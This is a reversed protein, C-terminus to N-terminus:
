MQLYLKLWGYDQPNSVEEIVSDGWLWLSHEAGTARRGGHYTDCEFQEWCGLPGIFSGFSSPNTLRDPYMPM